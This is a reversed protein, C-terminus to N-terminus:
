ESLRYRLYKITAGAGRKVSFKVPGIEERLDSYNVSGIYRGNVYVSSKTFDQEVRVKYYTSTDFPIADIVVWALSGDVTEMCLVGSKNFALELGKKYTGGRSGYGCNLTVGNSYPAVNYSGWQSVKFAFEYVGKIYPLATPYIKYSVVNNTTDATTIGLGEAELSVTNNSGGTEKTMGHNEPLGMLYNWEYDWAEASKAFLAKELAEYYEAGHEDDWKVHRVVNLLAYKADESIDANGVGVIGDDGVVLGKGAYISGQVKDVKQVGASSIADILEQAKQGEWIAVSM